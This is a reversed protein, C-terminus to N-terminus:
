DTFTVYQFNGLTKELVQTYHVAITLLPVIRQEYVEM